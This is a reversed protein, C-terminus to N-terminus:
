FDGRRLQEQAQYIPHTALPFTNTNTVYAIAINEQFTEERGNKGGKFVGKFLASM